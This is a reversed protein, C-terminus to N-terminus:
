RCRGQGTGRGAARPRWGPGTLPVRRVEILQDAGMLELVNSVALQPHVIQLTGGRERLVRATMLLLRAAISDMFSLGSAEITLHVIDGAVQSTLVEGLHASSSLDAQGSLAVVPGAEGATVSAELSGM